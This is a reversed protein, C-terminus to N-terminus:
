WYPYYGCYMLGLGLIVGFIARTKFSKETYEKKKILSPKALSIVGKLVAGWGFLTILGLINFEWMNHLIIFPLGFLISIMSSIAIFVDDKLNNVMIMRAEKSILMIAGNLFMYYGM